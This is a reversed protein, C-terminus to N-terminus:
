SPSSVEESDSQRKLQNYLSQAYGKGMKEFHKELMTDSAGSWLELHTERRKLQLHQM